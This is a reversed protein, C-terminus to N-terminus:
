IGGARIRWWILRWALYENLMMWVLLGETQVTARRQRGRHPAVRGNARIQRAGDRLCALM